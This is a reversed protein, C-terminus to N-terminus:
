RTSISTSFPQGIGSLATASVVAGDKRAARTTLMWAPSESSSERVSYRSEFYSLLSIQEARCAVRHRLNRIYELKHLGSDFLDRIGHARHEVILVGLLSRDMSWVIFSRISSRRLASFAWRTSSM